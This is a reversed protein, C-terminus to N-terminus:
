FHCGVDDHVLHAIFLEDALVLGEGYGSRELGHHLQSGDIRLVQFVPFPIRNEPDFVVGSRVAHGLREVFQVVLVVLM